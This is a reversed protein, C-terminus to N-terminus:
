ALTTQRKELPIKGCQAAQLYVKRIDPFPWRWFGRAPSSDPGRRMMTTFFFDGRLSTTGLPNRSQSATGLAISSVPTWNL